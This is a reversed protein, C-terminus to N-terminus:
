SVVLTQIETVPLRTTQSKTFETFPVWGGGGPVSTEVTWHATMRVPYAEQPQAASSHAYKYWCGAPETAPSDGAQAKVGTGPCSVEDGGGAGLPEVDLGTVRARLTVAGAPVVVEDATGDVFSVWQGVRPHSSPTVGAVPAPVGANNDEAAVLQQQRQTLQKTKQGNDIKTLGVDISIGGPQITKTKPDIGHLCREWYWRYGQPGAQNSLGMASLETDSLAEDWCGPVPDKGLIQKVTKAGWDAAGACSVGLYSPVAVVACHSVTGTRGGDGTADGTSVPDPVSAAPPSPPQNWTTAAVPPPALALMSVGLAVTMTALIRKM